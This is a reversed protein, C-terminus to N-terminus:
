VMVDALAEVLPDIVVGADLELEALALAQALTESSALDYVRLAPGSAVGETGAARAQSHM